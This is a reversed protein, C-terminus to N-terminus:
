LKENKIILGNKKVSIEYFRDSSAIDITNGNPHKLRTIRFSSGLGEIYSGEREYGESKFNNELQWLRYALKYDKKKM